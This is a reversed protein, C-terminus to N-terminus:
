ANFIQVALFLSCRMASLFFPQVSTFSEWFTSSTHSAAVVTVDLSFTVFSETLFFMFSEGWQRALRESRVVKVVGWLQM